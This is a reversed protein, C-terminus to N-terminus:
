LIMVLIVSVLLIILSFFNSSIFLAGSSSSSSHQPRNKSVCVGGVGSYNDLVVWECDEYYECYGKSEQYDICEDEYTKLDCSDGRKICKTENCEEDMIVSYLCYNFGVSDYYCGQSGWSCQFSECMSGPIASCYGSDGFDSYRDVCGGFEENEITYTIWVCDGDCTYETKYDLSCSSLGSHKCSGSIYNCPYICEDTNKFYSDCKRNITTSDQCKNDYWWCNQLNCLPQPFDSCIPLCENLTYLFILLFLM